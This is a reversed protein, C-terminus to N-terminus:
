DVTGFHPHCFGSGHVPYQSFGLESLQDVVRDPSDFGCLKQGVQCGSGAFDM